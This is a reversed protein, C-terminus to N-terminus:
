HLLETMWATIGRRIELSSVAM